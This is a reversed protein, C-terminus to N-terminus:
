EVRSSSRYSSVFHHVHHAFPLNFFYLSPGNPFSDIEHMLDKLYGCLEVRPFLTGRDLELKQLVVLSNVRLSTLVADMLDFIADKGKGLLTYASQGLQKLKDFIM